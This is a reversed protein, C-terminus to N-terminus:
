HRNTHQAPSHWVRANHSIGLASCMKGTASDLRQQLPADSTSTRFVKAPWSDLDFAEYALYLDESIFEAATRDIADKAVGRSSALAVKCGVWHVHKGRLSWSCGDCRMLVILCCCLCLVYCSLIIYLSMCVFARVGVCALVCVCVCM